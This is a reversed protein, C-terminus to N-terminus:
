VIRPDPAPMPLALVHRPVVIRNGSAGVRVRHRSLAAPTADGCARRLTTEVMLPRPDRLPEFIRVTCALDHAIAFQRLDMPFGQARLVVSAEGHLGPELDHPLLVLSLEQYGLRLST